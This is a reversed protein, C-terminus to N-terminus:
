TAIYHDPFSKVTIEIQTNKTLANADFLETKSFRTLGKINSSKKEAM